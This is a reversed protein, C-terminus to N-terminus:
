GAYKLGHNAGECPCDCIHRRAGLCRSDCQKVKGTNKGRIAEGDMLYGCGNPCAMMRVAEVMMRTTTRCRRCNYFAATM